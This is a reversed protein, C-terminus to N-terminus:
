LSFVHHPTQPELKCFSSKDESIYGIKFLKTNTFLTSNLVKYQFAKIYPEFSVKHPLWFVRKLHDDSLNLTQRLYQSNSPLKAKSSKILTYYDKSNKKLVYFDKNHITVLLSM